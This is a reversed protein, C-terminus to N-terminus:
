LGQMEREQSRSDKAKGHQAHLPQLRKALWPVPRATDADKTPSDEGWGGAGEM